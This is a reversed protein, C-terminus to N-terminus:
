STERRHHALFEAPTAFVKERNEQLVLLNRDRPTKCVNARYVAAGACQPGFPARTGRKTHCDIRVEGHAAQIWDDATVTGLWGPLAVRRWPCDSCPKRHQRNCPKADDSSKM